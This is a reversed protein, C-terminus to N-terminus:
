ELQHCPLLSLLSRNNIKKNTSRIRNNNNQQQCSMPFNELVPTRRRRIWLFYLLWIEVFLTKPREFIGDIKHQKYCPRIRMFRWKHVPASKKTPGDWCVGKSDRGLYNEVRSTFKVYNEISSWVNENMLTLLFGWLYQFQVAVNNESVCTLYVNNLSTSVLTVM